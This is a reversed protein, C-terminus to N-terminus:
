ELVLLDDPSYAIFDPGAEQLKEARQWGWGVGISGVGAAKAELIDGVTDGVYWPKLGSGHHERAMRIKLLKSTATDAGLVEAIGVLNHEAVVRKVDDGRSSTVIVVTNRRALREILEPMGRFPRPTGESAFASFADELENIVQSPVGAAALEEFWNGDLFALARECTAFQPLGNRRFVTVCADCFVQLSDVITGDYDFMILNKVSAGREGRGTM